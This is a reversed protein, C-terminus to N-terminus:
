DSTASHGTPPLAPPWKRVPWGFRRSRYLSRGGSGPGWLFTYEGVGRTKRVTVRDIQNLWGEGERTREVIYCSPLFKVHYKSSRDKVRVRGDGGGVHWESRVGSGITTPADSRTWEPVPSGGWKGRLSGRGGSRTVVWLDWCVWDIGYGVSM